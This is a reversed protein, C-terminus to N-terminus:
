DHILVTVRRNHAPNAKDPEKGLGYGKSDMSDPKVDYGELIAKLVNDARDQSLQACAASDGEGADAYGKVELVPLESKRLVRAAERVETLTQGSVESEGPAFDVNCIWGGSEFDRQCTTSGVDGGPSAEEQPLPQSRAVASFDQDHVIDDKSVTAKGSEDEVRLVYSDGLSSDVTGGLDSKGEWSLNKPPRGKGSFKKVTQGSADVIRLEWNNVPGQSVDSLDFEAGKLQMEGSGKLRPKVRSPKASMAESGRLGYDAGGEEAGLDALGGGAFAPAALGAHKELAPGGSKLSTRLSYSLGSDEVLGGQDAKGDWEVNPPLAGHGKFSRVVKGQADRIKLEWDSVEGSNESGLDIRAYEIKNSRPDKLLKAFSVEKASEPKVGFDLSLSLFQRLGSFVPGQSAPAVLAYDLGLRTGGFVFHSGLGATAFLDPAGSVQTAGGRLIFRGGFWASSLGARWESEGSGGSDNLWDEELALWTEAFPRWALGAEATAPQDEVLGNAWSLSSAADGLNLGLHFSGSLAAQLGVDMSWGSLGGPSASLYKQTTGAWFGPSSKLPQRSYRRKRPLPRAAATPWAGMLRALIATDRSLCWSAALRAARAFDGGSGLAAFSEASDANGLSAPNWLLSEGGEPLAVVAGAVGMSQAGLGLPGGQFSLSWAPGALGMCAAIFFLTNRM